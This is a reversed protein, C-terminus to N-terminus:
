VKRQRSEACRGMFPGRSQIIRTFNRKHQTPLGIFPNRASLDRVRHALKVLECSNPTFELRMWGASQRFFRQETMSHTQHVSIFILQSDLHKLDRNVRSGECRQQWSAHPYQQLTLLSLSSRLTRRCNIRSRTNAKAELSHIHHFSENYDLESFQQFIEQPRGTKEPLMSPTHLTVIASPAAQSSVQKLFLDIKKQM